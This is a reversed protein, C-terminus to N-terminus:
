NSTQFLVISLTIHGSTYDVTGGMYKAVINSGPETESIALTSASPNIGVMGDTTRILSTNGVTALTYNHIMWKPDTETGIYLCRDGNVFDESGSAVSNISLIRYTSTESIANYLVFSAGSAIDAVGVMATVFINPYSREDVSIDGCVFLSFIFIFPLIFLIFKGM